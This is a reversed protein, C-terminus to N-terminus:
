LYPLIMLNFYLSERNQNPFQLHTFRLPFLANFQSSFSFIYEVGGFVFFIILYHSLFNITIIVTQNIIM